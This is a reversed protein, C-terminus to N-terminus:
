IEYHPFPEDPLQVKHANRHFCIYEETLGKLRVFDSLLAEEAALNSYIERLYLYEEKLEDFNGRLTQEKNKIM